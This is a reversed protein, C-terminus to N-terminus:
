TYSHQVTSHKTVRTSSTTVASNSHGSGELGSHPVPGPVGAGSVVAKRAKGSAETAIQYSSELTSAPTLVRETVTVNQGVAAVSPVVLAPQVGSSPALVSERERVMVYQADQLHQTGGRPHPIGGNPQIVRETVVVNGEGASHQGVLTSAPAYLRETVILSQPQGPGLVVTSPPMTPGTTYSTETMIINGSALPDPPPPVVKQGQRSSVSRETVIEQTVKEARTEQLPKPVQFSSGSSSTNESNVMTQEYFSHAATTLDTEKVPKQRQEIEVDVDIKQGLCVEALTKFKLGLDDLFRDDLEGEIFSCCGVSGHLSETEEESYVLLCDKAMHIVDEESYSAAKDAFYNRLFEESVTSAAAARAGAADRSAGVARVTRMTEAGRLAGATGTVHTGGGSLLSRHEEWRGDAETLDHQVRSFSASSSGKATAEKTIAGGVGNRAALNEEHDVALLSPVVKDEPPAGESNWPHLMEITGPIPTFGKAGEGCHCLLLLLPVLLLLLLALIMLAVAAPGLGVYSDHQAAVCGSGQLCKCVTLQLVQQEPCSFGQNDVILLPIESRGIQRQSQQLLVST